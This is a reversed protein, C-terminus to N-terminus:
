GTADLNTKSESRSFKTSSLLVNKEGIYEFIKSSNERVVKSIQLLLAIGGTRPPEQGFDICTYM